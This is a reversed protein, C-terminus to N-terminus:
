ITVGNQLLDGLLELPVGAYKARLVLLALRALENDDLPEQLQAWETRLQLAEIGDRNVAISWHGLNSCLTEVTIALTTM